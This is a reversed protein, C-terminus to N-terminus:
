NPSRRWLARELYFNICSPQFIRVQCAKSGNNTVTPTKKNISIGKEAICIGGNFGFGSSSAKSKIKGLLKMRRCDDDFTITLIKNIANDVDHPLLIPSNGRSDFSDLYKMGLMTEKGPTPDWSFQGGCGMKNRRKNHPLRARVDPQVLRWRGKNMDYGTVPQRTRRRDWGIFLSQQIRMEPRSTKVKNEKHQRNM